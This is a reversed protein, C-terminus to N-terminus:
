NTFIRYDTDKLDYQYRINLKVNSMASSATAMANYKFKWLQKVGINDSISINYSGRTASSVTSTYWKSPRAPQIMHHVNGQSPSQTSSTTISTVIANDPFQSSNSLDISIVSSDRGSSSFPSNGVNSARGSLEVTRSGTKIRDAASLSFYMDGTYYDGRNVVLYYTSNSSTTNDVNVYLCPTLGTTNILNNPNKMPIGVSSGSANRLEVEMGTYATDSSVRVYIKEGAAVTFRFWSQQEGSYLIATDNMSSWTGFNYATGMTNNGTIVSAAQVTEPNNGMGLTLTLVMAVALISCILKKIKKM